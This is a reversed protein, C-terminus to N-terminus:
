DPDHTRPLSLRWEAMSSCKLFKDLYEGDIRGQRYSKGARVEIVTVVLRSKPSHRADEAVGLHSRGQEIAQGM